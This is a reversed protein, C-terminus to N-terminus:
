DKLDNILFSHYLPTPRFDVQYLKAIIKKLHSGAGSYSVKDTWQNTPGNTPQNTGMDSQIYNEWRNTSPNIQFKDIQEKLEEEVKKEVVERVRGQGGGGWFSFKNMNIPCITVKALVVKLM